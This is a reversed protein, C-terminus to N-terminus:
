RREQRPWLLSKQGRNFAGEVRPIHFLLHLLDVAEIYAVKSTKGITEEPDLIKKEM